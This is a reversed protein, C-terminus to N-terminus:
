NLVSRAASLQRGLWPLKHSLEPARRLWQCRSWEEPLSRGDAVLWQSLGTAVEAQRYRSDLKGGSGVKVKATEIPSTPKVVVIINILVNM